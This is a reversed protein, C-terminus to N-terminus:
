SLTLPLESVPLKQHEKDGAGATQRARGEPKPAGETTPDGGAAQPVESAATSLCLSLLTPYILAATDVTPITLIDRYVSKLSCLWLVSPGLASHVSVSILSINVNFM